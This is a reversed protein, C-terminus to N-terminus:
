SSYSRCASYATDIREAQVSAASISQATTARTRYKLIASDTGLYYRYSWASVKYGHIITYDWNSSSLAKSIVAVYPTSGSCFRSGGNWSQANASVSTGLTLAIAGVAAIALSRTKVIKVIGGLARNTRIPATGFLTGAEPTM